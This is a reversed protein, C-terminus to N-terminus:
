NGAAVATIGLIIAFVLLFVIGVLALITMVIGLIRGIVISQQNAYVVGLTRGQRLAKSGIYWAFPACIGAVFVGLIGLVLVLTGQPHEPSTLGYPQGYPQMPYPQLQDPQRAYPQGAYPQGAYPQSPHSEEPYVQGPHPPATPTQASPPQPDHPDPETM